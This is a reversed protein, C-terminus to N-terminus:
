AHERGDRKWGNFMEDIYDAEEDLYIEGLPQYQDSVEGHQQRMHWVAEFEAHNLTFTLTTRTDLVIAACGHCFVVVRM